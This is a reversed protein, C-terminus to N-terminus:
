HQIKLCDFNGGFEIKPFLNELNGSLWALYLKM